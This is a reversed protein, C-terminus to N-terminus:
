FLCMNCLSIVLYIGNYCQIDRNKKDSYHTKKTSLHRDLIGGGWLAQPLNAIKGKEFCLGYEYDQHLLSPKDLVVFSVESALLMAPAMALSSGIVSDIMINVSLKQAVNVMNLAETLGGCKDLKINVVDYFQSLYKIDDSSICSEDACLPIISDLGALQAYQGKALPQEILLIPLYECQEVISKLITLDWSEHADLLLKADPASQHVANIRAMIDTNDLNIKLLPYNAYKAANVAMKEPTNLPITKASIIDKPADQHLITSVRTFNAKAEVDWLACDIANRAAGAPLLTQLQKRTIGTEVAERVQEIQSRISAITEGNKVNPTCEGRGVSSSQKLEVKVTTINECLNNDAEAPETLQWQHASVSLERNQVFAERIFIYLAV